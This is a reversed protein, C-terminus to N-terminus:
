ADIGDLVDRLHAGDCVDVGPRTGGRRSSVPLARLRGTEAGRPVLSLRLAEEVVDGLTTNREIAKRKAAALVEDDISVTTRM